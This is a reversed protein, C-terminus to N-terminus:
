IIVCQADDSVIYEVFISYKPEDHLAICLELAMGEEMGGSAGEWNIKCDHGEVSINLSNAM